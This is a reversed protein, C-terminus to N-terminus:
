QRDARGEEHHVTGRVYSGGREARSFTKQTLALARAARGAGLAPAVTIDLIHNKHVNEFLGFHAFSGDVGRAAIVSAESKFHVFAELVAESGQFASWASETEDISM